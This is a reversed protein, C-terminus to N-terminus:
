EDSDDGDDLPKLNRVVFLLECPFDGTALAEPTPAVQGTNSGPEQPQPEAPPPALSPDLISPEIWGITGFAGLNRATRSLIAFNVALQIAQGSEDSVGSADCLHQLVRDSAERTTLNLFFSAIGVPRNVLDRYMADAERGTCSVLFLEVEDMDERDDENVQVGQLFRHKLLAKQQEPAVVAVTQNFRIEHRKLLNGFAAQDVGEPTVSVEYVLVLHQKADRRVLEFPISGQPEEEIETPPKGEPPMREPGIDPPTPVVSDPDFTILSSNDDPGIPIIGFILLVAAAVAVAAWVFGRWTAGDGDRGPKGALEVQEAAEEEGSPEVLLMHREAQRMVRDAFGDDLQYSPLAHLGGDLERLEALLHRCEASSELREEVRRQDEDPLEGDLYASILEDTFEAEQADTTSSQSLREVEDYIRRSVRDDLRYEPLLRLHDDLRRLGDLMRRHEASEALLREVEKREEASVEGDLYASLLEDSFADRANM